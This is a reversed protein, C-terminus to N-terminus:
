LAHKQVDAGAFAILVAVDRQGLARQQEQALLPFRVAMRGQEKGGFTVTSPSGAGGGFRHAAGGQLAGETQGELGAGDGFVRVDVRQAMGVRRVHQLLALIEALNLDIQAVPTGDDGGNVGVQGTQAFGLM